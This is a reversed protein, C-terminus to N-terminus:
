GGFFYLEYFGGRGEKIVMIITHGYPFHFTLRGGNKLLLRGMDRTLLRGKKFLYLLIHFFVQELFCSSTAAHFASTIIRLVPLKKKLQNHEMDRNMNSPISRVVM